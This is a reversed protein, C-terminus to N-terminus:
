ISWRVLSVNSDVYLILGKAAYNEYAFWNSFFVLKLIDSTLILPLKGRNRFCYLKLWLLRGLETQKPCLRIYMCVADLLFPSPLVQSKM